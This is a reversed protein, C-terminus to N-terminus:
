LQISNKKEIETHDITRFGIADANSSAKSIYKQCKRCSHTQRLQHHTPHLVITICYFHLDNKGVYENRLKRSLQESTSDCCSNHKNPLLISQSLKFIMVYLM